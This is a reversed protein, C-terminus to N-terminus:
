VEGWFKEILLSISVQFMGIALVFALTYQKILIFFIITCAILLSLIISCRRHHQIDGERVPNNKHVIPANKIICILSVLSLVASLTIEYKYTSVHLILLVLVYAIVTMICCRLPTKAHYGGCHHRLMLVSFVYLITEIWKNSYLMILFVISWNLITSLIIRFGYIYSDIESMSIVNKKAFFLAISKSLHNIM